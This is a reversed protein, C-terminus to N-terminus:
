AKLMPRKLQNVKKRLRSILITSETPYNPIPGEVFVPETILLETLTDKQAQMGYLAIKEKAEKEAKKRQKDTLQALVDEREKIFDEDGSDAAVALWAFGQYFDKKVGEGNSYMVWLSHQASPEGIKALSEFMSFAETYNKSDYIKLANSYDQDRPHTLNTSCSTITILLFAISFLRKLYLNCM